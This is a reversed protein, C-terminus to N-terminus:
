RLHGHGDHLVRGRGPRVAARRLGQGFGHDRAAHRGFAGAFRGRRLLHFRRRPSGRGPVRGPHDDEAGQRLLVSAPRRAHGQGDRLEPLYRVEAHPRVARLVERLGYPRRRAHEGSRGQDEERSPPRHRAAPRQAAADRPLHEAHPRFLGGRRARLRLLRASAGRVQGHHARQLLVPRARAQLGELVHGVARPEARVHPRRLEAVRGRARFHYPGPKRLRPLRDQLVRRVGGPLGRVEQAELHPDHLQHDRGRHLEGM